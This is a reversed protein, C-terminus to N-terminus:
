PQPTRRPRTDGGTAAKNSNSKNANTNPKNSDTAANKNSKDGANSNKANSNNSNSSNSNADSSNGIVDRTTSSKKKNSNANANSKNTKKPKDSILEEIKESDNEESLNKKITVPAEEGEPNTKSTVVLIMQGTKVTDGAKPLQELITNPKENSYRDARKKIRLGLSALERESEVLDKGVIEPVKLEEGQLSLYVVGVAGVLFAAALAIVIFLKGFASAGKRILSM